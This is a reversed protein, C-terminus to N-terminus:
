EPIQSIFDYLEAAYNQYKSLDIEFQVGQILAAHLIGLYYVPFQIIQSKREAFASMMLELKEGYTYWASVAHVMIVTNVQERYRTVYADLDEPTADPNQSLAIVKLGTRLVVRMIKVFAVISGWYQKERKFVRMSGRNIWKARVMILYLKSFATSLAEELSIEQIQPIIQPFRETIFEVPNTHLCLRLTPTMVLAFM